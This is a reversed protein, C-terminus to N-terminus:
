CGLVYSPSNRASPIDNVRWACTTMTLFEEIGSFYWRFNKFYDLHLLSNSNELRKTPM